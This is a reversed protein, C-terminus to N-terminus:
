ILREFMCPVSKARRVMEALRERLAYKRALYQEKNREYHTRRYRRMAEPDRTKWRPEPEREQMCKNM